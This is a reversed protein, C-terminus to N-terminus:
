LGIGGPSGAHRPLYAMCELKEIWFKTIALAVVVALLIGALGIDRKGVHEIIYRETSMPPGLLVTENGLPHTM